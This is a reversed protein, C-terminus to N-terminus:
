YINVEFTKKLQEESIDEVNSEPFQQAANNILCNVTGFEKVMADVANQCEVKRSVDKRLLLCESGESEILSKTKQADRDENLYVISVKAGERAALISVSRGIGSDGGTILVVKGKLKDSGKYWHAMYQPKPSMEHENGPQEEQHQPPLKSSKSM